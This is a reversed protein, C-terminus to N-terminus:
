RGELGLTIWLIVFKGVVTLPRHIVKGCVQPYSKCFELNVMGGKGVM